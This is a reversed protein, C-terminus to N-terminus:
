LSLGYDEPGIPPLAKLRKLTAYNKIFRSKSQLFWNHCNAAPESDLNLRKWVEVGYWWPVGLHTLLVQSMVLRHANTMVGQRSARSFGNSLRVMTSAGDVQTVLDAQTSQGAAWRQAKGKLIPDVVYEPLKANLRCHLLWCVQKLLAKADPTDKTQLWAICGQLDLANISFWFSMNLGGRGQKRKQQYAELGQVATKFRAFLETQLRYRPSRLPLRGLREFFPTFFHHRTFGLPADLVTENSHISPAYWPRIVRDAPELHDTLAISVGDTHKVKKFVRKLLELRRPSADEYYFFERAEIGPPPFLWHHLVTRSATPSSVCM